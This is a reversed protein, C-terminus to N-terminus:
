ASAWHGLAERLRRVASDVSPATLLASAVAVGRFGYRGLAPLNEATIGGIAFIPLTTAERAETLAEGGIVRSRARTATPHISGIGLYDVGDPTAAVESPDHTSWGVLVGPGLLSRAARIPLDHQGLHVGDAGSALAVDVADNLILPVGAERCRPLLRRAWDLFRGGPVEKARLQLLDVGAELLREGTTVLEEAHVLGADLIAYLM